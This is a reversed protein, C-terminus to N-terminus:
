PKGATFDYRRTLYRQRDARCPAWTESRRSSGLSTSPSKRRWDSCRSWSASIGQYVPATHPPCQETLLCGVAEDKTRPHPADADAAIKLVLDLVDDVSDRVKAWRCATGERDNPTASHHPREPLLDPWRCRCPKTCGDWPRSRASSM